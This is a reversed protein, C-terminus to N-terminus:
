HTGVAHESGDYAQESSRGVSDLPALVPSYPPLYSVGGCGEIAARLSDMKHAGLNDNIGADTEAGM